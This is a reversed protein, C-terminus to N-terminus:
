ILQAEILTKMLDLIIESIVGKYRDLYEEKLGNLTDVLDVRLSIDDKNKDKWVMNLKKNVPRVTMTHFGKSNKSCQVYNIVNSINSSQEM